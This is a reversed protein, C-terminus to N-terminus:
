NLQCKWQFSIFSSSGVAMCLPTVKHTQAQTHMHTHTSWSMIYLDHIEIFCKQLETKNWELM